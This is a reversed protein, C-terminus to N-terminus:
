SSEFIISIFDWALEGFLELQPINNGDHGELSRQKLFCAMCQLLCAMNCVNSQLFENTGFLSTATFNGDWLNPNAPINANYPIVTPSSLESFTNFNNSPTPDNPADKHPGHPTQSPLMTFDIVHPGHFSIIYSSSYFTYTTYLIM